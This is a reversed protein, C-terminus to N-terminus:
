PKIVANYLDIYEQAIHQLSYNQTRTHINNSFTNCLEPQTALTIMNEALAKTNNIPSLLGDKHHRIFDKVGTANTAIVPLGCAGAELLVRAFGERFTPLVFADSQLLLDKVANSVGLYDIYTAYDELITKNLRKSNEELPGVLIFKFNYGKDHCYKAAELYNIIGKEYVLRSVCIFTFPQAQRKAITNFKTLDIGSSLILAEKGKSILKNNIFLAQDDTNQFVTKNVRNNVTKHLKFYVQKLSKYFLSKSMFVTGLGTITRTIPTNNSQLALPVLFAPKTDFTHIIDFQKSAFFQRLWIITKYDKLISFPRYLNYRIYTINQPFEKTSTGIITVKFDAEILYKSLAIRKHVDEGGILCISKTM